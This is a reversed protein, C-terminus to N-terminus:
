RKELMELNSNFADLHRLSGELLNNYVTKIDNHTSAAIGANLDDIDTEEILVGAELAGVLSASGSAILEDYLAQLKSNAFEGQGLAPDKIGYRDLLKKIADMHIQESAAINTFIRSGWMTGLSLYVDRALKEEERMYTLWDIEEGTLPMVQAQVDGVSTMSMLAMLTGVVLWNRVKTSLGTRMVM